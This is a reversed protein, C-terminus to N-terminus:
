VSGGGQFAEKIRGFLPEKEKPAGRVAGENQCNHAIAIVEVGTLIARSDGAEKRLACWTKGGSCRRTCLMYRMPLECLTLIGQTEVHLPLVWGDLHRKELGM